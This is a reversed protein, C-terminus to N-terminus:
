KLEKIDTKVICGNFDDNYLWSGELLDDVNVESKQKIAIDITLRYNKTKM